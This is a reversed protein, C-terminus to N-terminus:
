RGSAILAAVPAESRFGIWVPTQERSTDDTVDLNPSSTFSAPATRPVAAATFGPAARSSSGSGDDGHTAKKKV